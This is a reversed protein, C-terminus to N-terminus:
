KDGKLNEIQIKWDRINNRLTPWLSNDWHGYINNLKEQSLCLNTLVDLSFKADEYDECSLDERILDTYDEALHEMSVQIVNYEMGNLINDSISKITKQKKAKNM